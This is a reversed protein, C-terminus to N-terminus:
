KIKKIIISIQKESIKPRINKIYTVFKKIQELSEVGIIKEYVDLTGIAKM